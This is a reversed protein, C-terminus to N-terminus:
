VGATNYNLVAIIGANIASETRISCKIVIVRINLHEDLTIYQVSPFYFIYYYRIIFVIFLLFTVIPDHSYICLDSLM